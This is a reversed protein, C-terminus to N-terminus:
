MCLLGYLGSDTTFIWNDRSMAFWLCRYHSYIHQTRQFYWVISVQQPQLHATTESYLWGYLGASATFISHDKISAFWLSRCHSYIHQPRQVYCLISVQLPKSNATNELCLLGFLGATATFISNEIFVAFWLSSCNATFISPHRSM